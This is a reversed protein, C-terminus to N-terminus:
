RKLTILIDTPDTHHRPSPFIVSALGVEFSIKEKRHERNHLKMNRLRLGNEM